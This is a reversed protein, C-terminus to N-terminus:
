PQVTAGSPPLLSLDWDVASGKPVTALLDKIEARQPNLRRARLLEPRPDLGAGGQLVALNFAYRWNNPDREVAKEMAQIAFGSRGRKAQCLALVEYPEPRIDLTSISATARDIATSCNGARLADLGDNLQRQSAFVLGPAVTALLALLGVTVRVGQRAGSPSVSSEHAALAAGGLAFVWATVAPMQWDWDV